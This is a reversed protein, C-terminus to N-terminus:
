EGGDLYGLSRLLEQDEASPMPIQDAEAGGQMFAELKTMLMAALEVEADSVDVSEGPDQELDFVHSEGTLTDHLLKHRQFRIMRRIDPQSNNHDAESYLYRDPGSNSVWVQQLDIGDLGDDPIGCAALITPAVDVLHVPEDIRRGVPVDPGRVLLPIRIVEEFHTQGHLVSGHEGFEEGHDSTVVVLTDDALGLQDLHAFLGALLDDLQRIEADYLEFLYRVDDEGLTGGRARLEALQLTSGDFEGDYPGVFQARYEDDPTFDTHVDYFHLFMFFPQDGVEGLLEQARAVIRPGRNLIKGKPNKELVYEFVDFGRGLGYRESLNHSNVVGLTRYGHEGLRTALSRTKQRLRNTHGVVGHRSPYLGTLMTAHSPLTWPSASTVDEFLVGGAALADLAPSTERDHGYCGLRDPRLTDISILLVNPPRQDAGGCGALLACALLAPVLLGSLRPRLPSM